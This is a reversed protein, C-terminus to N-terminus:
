GLPGEHYEQIGCIQCKKLGRFYSYDGHMLGREVAWSHNGNRCQERLIRKLNWLRLQPIGVILVHAAYLIVLVTAVLPMLPAIWPSMKAIMTSAGQFDALLGIGVLAMSFFTYETAAKKVTLMYRWPFALARARDIPNSETPLGIRGSFECIGHPERRGRLGTGDALM